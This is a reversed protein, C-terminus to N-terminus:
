RRARGPAHKAASPASANKPKEPPKLLLEYHFAGVVPPLLDEDGRGRNEVVAINPNNIQLFDDYFDTREGTADPDGTLARFFASSLALADSSNDMALFGKFRFMGGNAVEGRRVTKHGKATPAVQPPVEISDLWIQFADESNQSTVIDFFQDLKRSWLTRSRNITQIASRRKEYGDIEKQLALSRDRQSEKGRAEETKVNKLEKVNSLEIFHTYAYAGSASAVMAVGVLIAVLRAVPTGTRPRYEPPLLNIQIM